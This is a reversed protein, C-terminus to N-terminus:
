VWDERPHFYPVLPFLKRLTTNTAETLSPKVDLSAELYAELPDLVGSLIRTLEIDSTVVELDVNQSSEMLSIGDSVTLICSQSATKLRINGRWPPEKDLRRDLLPKLLTILKPLDIISLMFVRYPRIAYGREELFPRLFHDHPSTLFRAESIGKSLLHEELNSLLAEAIATRDKCSSVRLETAFAGWHKYYEAWGQIEGDVEAVTVSEPDAKLTEERAEKWRETTKRRPGFFGGYCEQFIRVFAEEDGEEYSRLTFNRRKRPRPIPKQIQKVTDDLFFLTIYGSKRYLRRAFNFSGTSVSSCSYGREVILRKAKNMMRSAIGRRRLREDTHVGAIGAMKVYTGEAWQFNLDLVSVTGVMEGQVKAYVTPDEFTIEVGNISPQENRRTSEDVLSYVGDGQEEKFKFTNGGLRPVGM